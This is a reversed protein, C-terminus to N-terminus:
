TGSSRGPRLWFGRRRRLPPALSGRSLAPLILGGDANSWRLHSSRPPSVSSAPPSDFVLGLCRNSWSHSSSHRPAPCLCVPVLAPPTSFCGLVTSSWSRQFAPAWALEKLQRLNSRQCHETDRHVSEPNLTPVHIATNPATGKHEADRHVLPRVSEPVVVPCRGGPM